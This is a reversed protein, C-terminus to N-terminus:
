QLFQNIENILINKIDLTKEENNSEIILRVIPETNSVRIHAWSGCSYYIKIGDTLVYERNKQKCLTIQHNIFTKFNFSIDSHVHIKEKLMYYSPLMSKLDTMSLKSTSLYSLLLAIGVLADRGYHSPSFIVGGSGEGGIISKTVKMLEVVNIEGVASEFHQAGLEDAIDKVARTTSLNSVITSKPHKSLIYKAVAVITYEEGFFSGDECVLVLRDVDPDVAIGLDARFSKVKECLDTLNEPIPEPNHAFNGDPICNLDIINVGIKNLLYPVYVGGSSNIGDVVIKFGREKISQVDIDDLQLVLEIHKALYDMHRMSGLCNTKKTSPLAFRFVEEGEKKSLFEGKSNLLKLGNWNSPNHSASVMIGATCHEHIVAIQVSPTTTLDLNLVCVGINMLTEGILNIIYEGSKRGDRGIVVTIDNPTKERTLWHAFQTVCKIIENNCLHPANGGYITGRVGSISKILVM